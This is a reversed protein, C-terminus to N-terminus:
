LNDDFPIFKASVLGYTNKGSDWTATSGYGKVYRYVYDKKVPITQVDYDYNDGGTGAIAIANTGDTDSAVMITGYHDTTFQFMLVLWGNSTPSWDYLLNKGSEVIHATSVNTINPIGTSHQKLDKLSIPLADTITSM